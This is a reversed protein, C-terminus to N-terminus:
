PIFLKYTEISNKGIKLNIKKGSLGTDKEDEEILSTKFLKSFPMFMQLEVNQEAGSMETMRLTISNDDESKKLATLMLLEGSASFFSQEEPLSKSIGRIPDMVPYLKNQGQKGSRFGNKWGPEHIYLSFSFHHDGLQLYDNGEWHCSKRSAM